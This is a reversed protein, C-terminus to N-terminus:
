PDVIAFPRVNEGSCVRGLQLNNCKYRAAVAVRDM